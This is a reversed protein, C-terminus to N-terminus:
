GKREKGLKLYKTVRQGILQHLKSQDTAAGRHLLLKVVAEHGNQAAVLLPTLGSGDKAETGAGRDLLLKVIAKNESKAAFLLPTQGSRFMKAETEAGRDLLLKVIAENWNQAAISLPTRGSRDKTEIAAGRDLLLKVITEHGNQVAVSLPTLGSVDKAETDAGRELLLRVIRVHRTEAARSLATRGSDNKMDVGADSRTLLLWVIDEYGKAAALSLTAPTKFGILQTASINDDPYIVDLSIGDMEDFKLKGMRTARGAQVCIRRLPYQFPRFRGLDLQEFESSQVRRFQQM